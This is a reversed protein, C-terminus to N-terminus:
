RLCAAALLGIESHNNQNRIDTLATRAAPGTMRGLARVAARKVRHNPDSAFRRLADVRAPETEKHTASGLALLLPELVSANEKLLSAELLATCAAPEGVLDIVRAIYDIASENSDDNSLDVQELQEFILNSVRNCQGAFIKQYQEATTTFTYSPPAVARNYPQMFGAFATSSDLKVSAIASDDLLMLAGPLNGSNFFSM